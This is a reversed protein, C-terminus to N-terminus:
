ERGGRGGQWAPGSCPMCARHQRPVWPSSHMPVKLCIVSIHKSIWQRSVKEWSVALAPLKHSVFGFNIHLHIFLIWQLTIVTSINQSHESWRDIMMDDPYFCALLVVELYPFCIWCDAIAESVLTINYKSKNYSKLNMNMFKRLRQLNYNLLIFKLYKFGYIHDNQGGLCITAKPLWQSEWHRCCLSGMAVLLQSHQLTEKNRNFQLKVAPSFRDWTDEQM